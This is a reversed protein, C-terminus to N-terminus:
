YGQGSQNFNISLNITQAEAVLRAFRLQGQIRKLTTEFSQEPEAISYMLLSHRPIYTHIHIYVTTATTSPLWTHIYTNIYGIYIHTHRHSHSHRYYANMPAKIGTYLYSCTKVKYQIRQKTVKTTAANFDKNKSWNKKFKTQQQQERRNQETRKM